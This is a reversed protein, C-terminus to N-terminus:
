APFKSILPHMRYQIKLMIPKHGLRVLREYLCRDLKADKAKQSLVVPGLQYHDGVLIIHKAKKLM